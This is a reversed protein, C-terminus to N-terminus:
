TLCESLKRIKKQRKALMKRSKRVKKPCTKRFVFRVNKQRKEKYKETMKPFKEAM